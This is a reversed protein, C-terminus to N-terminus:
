DDEPLKRRHGEQIDAFEAYPWGVIVLTLDDHTPAAAFGRKDRIYVEFRGDMPLGSWYTYYAALLPRVSTTTNPGFPEAVFSRRGDAGSSSELASSSPAAM